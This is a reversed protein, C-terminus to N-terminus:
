ATAATINHECVGNLGTIGVGVADANCGVAQCEIACRQAICRAIRCCERVRSNRVINGKHYVGRGWDVLISDEGGVDAFSSPSLDRDGASTFGVASNPQCWGTRGIKHRAVRNFGVGARRGSDSRWACLADVLQEHHIRCAVDRASRSGGQRHVVRGRGVM